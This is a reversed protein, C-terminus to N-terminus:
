SSAGTNVELFWGVASVKVVLRSLRYFRTEAKCQFRNEAVFSSIVFDVNSSTVWVHRIFNLFDALRAGLQFAAFLQFKPAHELYAWM